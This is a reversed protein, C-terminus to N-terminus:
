KKETKDHAEMELVDRGMMKLTWRTTLNQAFLASTSIIGWVFSAGVLRVSNVTDYGVLYGVFMFALVANVLGVFGYAAIMAKTFRKDNRMAHMIGATCGGGLGSVAALALLLIPWWDHALQKWHNPM